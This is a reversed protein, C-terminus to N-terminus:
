ANAEMAIVRTPSLLPNLMSRWKGHEPPDVELPILPWDEGLASSFIRRNSSFTVGDRLVKRQDAARVVIWTGEGNRTNNPAFFIPPGSHLVSTAAQPDGMPTHVMGPSTYFNFSGVLHPPVHDPIPHAPSQATSQATM